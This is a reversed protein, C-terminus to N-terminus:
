WRFQGWLGFEDYTGNASGGITGNQTSLSGNDIKDRKYVLAFDVIKAPSYSVGLNFYNDVFTPATTKKPKVWDYRGFVGIQDTFKFSGFGSWGESANVLLPNSQKVDAWAKAYFYEGGLRIRKDVYAALADFRQANQYTPTGQVANGLKGDYGGVAFTFNSVNASVRGEFDVDNSRNVGGIFGPKKYGQGNIAAFAYNLTVMNGLPLKGLAHVGWDASTGFKDRDIMVYEVYRYGYIDEVFPIWPLDASGLRFTLADSLKAQLYAKKIYLQTAGAPGSDYNFDTTINASFTDNFKHDIGIYFRKIDFNTGNPGGPVTVGNSKQEINSADYYMRGTVSTSGEWGPKPKPIAAVATKVEGPIRKIEDATQAAVQAQAAQTQTAAAQAQQAAAQTQLMVGEVASLRANLTANQERLERIEEEKPDPAAAAAAHHHHKVPKAYAPAGLGLALALSVGAGCLLSNKYSM